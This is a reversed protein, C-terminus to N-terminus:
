ELSGTVTLQQKARSLQGKWVYRGDIRLRQFTLQFGECNRETATAFDSTDFIAERVLTTAISKMAYEFLDLLNSQEKEDIGHSAIDEIVARKFRSSM